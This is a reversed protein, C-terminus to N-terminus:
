IERKRAERQAGRTLSLWSRWPCPQVSFNQTQPPVFTSAQKEYTKRFATLINEIEMVGGSFRINPPTRIFQSNRKLPASTGTGTRYSHIHFCICVITHVGTSANWFATGCYWFATCFATCFHLHLPEQGATGFHLVATGFHLVFLLVHVITGFHSKNWVKSCNYDHCIPRFATLPPRHKECLTVFIKKALYKYM